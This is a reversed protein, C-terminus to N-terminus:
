CRAHLLCLWSVEAIDVRMGNPRDKFTPPFLSLMAFNITQDAGAAGDITVFFNNNVDSASATPHLELNVQTWRTTTGHIQTSNQALIKGDNTQLGVTLAGSFSSSVPFRFFLSAKYTWSSDVKIGEPDHAEIGPRPGCSFDSVGSAKQQLRSQWNCWQARLVPSRFLM